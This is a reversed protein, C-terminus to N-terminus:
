KKCAILQVVTAGWGGAELPADKFSAVHPNRRLLSQVRRKQSGMGKGHIIRVSEFGVRICEEIYDELLQPVDAPQFTHLDIVDEIRIKIPKM